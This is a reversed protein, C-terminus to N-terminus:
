IGRKKSRDLHENLKNQLYIIMGRLQQSEKPRIPIEKPEEWDLEYPLSNVIRGFPYPNLPAFHHGPRRMEKPQSQWSKIRDAENM